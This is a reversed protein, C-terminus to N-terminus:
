GPTGYTMDWANQFLLDKKRSQTPLPNPTPQSIPVHPSIPIPPPYLTPVDILCYDYKLLCIECM